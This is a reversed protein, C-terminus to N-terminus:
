SAPAAALWGDERLAGIRTRSVPAELGGTLRLRLKRGDEVVGAIAARAVWWSRHTQVGEVDRLGAM